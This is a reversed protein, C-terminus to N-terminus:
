VSACFPQVIDKRSLSKAYSNPILPKALLRYKALCTGRYDAARKLLPKLAYTADAYAPL